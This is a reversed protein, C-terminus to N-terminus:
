SDDLYAWSPKGQDGHQNIVDARAPKRRSPQQASLKTTTIYIPRAPVGPGYRQCRAEKFHLYAEKSSSFSSNFDIDLKNPAHLDQKPKCDSSVSFTALIEKSSFALELLVAALHAHQSLKTSSSSDQLCSLILVSSSLVYRQHM